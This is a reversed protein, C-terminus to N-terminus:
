GGAAVLNAGCEQLAPLACFPRIRVAGYRLKKCWPVVRVMGKHEAFWKVCEPNKGKGACYREWLKKEQKRAEALEAQLQSLHFDLLAQGYPSNLFAFYMADREDPSGFVKNVATALKDAETIPSTDPFPGHEYGPKGETIMGAHAGLEHFLTEVIANEDRIVNIGADTQDRFRDAVVILGEAPTGGQMGRRAGQKPKGMANDDLMRPSIMSSKPLKSESPITWGLDPTANGPRRVPVPDGPESDPLIGTDADSIITTGTTLHWEKERIATVANRFWDPIDKDHVGEPLPIGDSTLVIRNGEAAFMTKMWPLLYESRMIMEVWQQASIRSSSSVTLSGVSKMGRSPAPQRRLTRTDHHVVHVLEHALLRQGEQSHPAYQGDAFVVNPGVTYARANVARASQAAKADAHVQVHSLDCGLRPEMFARTASNLPQGPSRLVEHVIHPAAVQGSINAGAQKTQLQPEPTSTVRASIRDAEQEYADGPENITLKPHMSGPSQSLEATRSAHAREGVSSVAQSASSQTRMLRLVAQNGIARQLDLIPSAPRNISRARTRAPAASSSTRQATQKEAQRFAGLEIRRGSVRHQQRSTYRCGGLAGAVNERTLNRAIDQSTPGIM